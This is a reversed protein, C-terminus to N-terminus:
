FWRMLLPQVLTLAVKMPRKEDWGLEDTTAQRSSVYLSWFMVGVLDSVFWTRIVCDLGFNAQFFGPRGFLGVDSIKEGGWGEM